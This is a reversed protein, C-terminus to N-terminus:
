NRGCRDLTRLYEEEDTVATSDELVEASLRCAVTLEESILDNQTSRAGIVFSVLLVLCVLLNLLTATLAVRFRM